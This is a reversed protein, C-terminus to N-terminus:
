FSFLKHQMGNTNKCRTAAFVHYTSSACLTFETLMLVIVTIQTLFMSIVSKRDTSLYSSCTLPFHEESNCQTIIRKSNKTMYLFVKSNNLFQGQVFSRPYNTSIESNRKACNFELSHIKWTFYTKWLTFVTFFILKHM